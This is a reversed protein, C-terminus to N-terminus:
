SVKDPPIRPFTRRIENKIKIIRTRGRKGINGKADEASVFGLSCLRDIYNRVSRDSDEKFKEYLESSTVEGKEQIFEYVERERGNLKESSNEGEGVEEFAKRVHEEAVKEANEREAIKGAKWLINIALRADGNNKAARAACLPIM